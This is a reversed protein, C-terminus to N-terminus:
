RVADIEAGLARGSLSSGMDVGFAIASQMAHGLAIYERYLDDIESM